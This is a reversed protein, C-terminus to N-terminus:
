KGRRAKIDNKFDRSAEAFTNPQKLWKYVAQQAIEASKEVFRAPAQKSSGENLDPVYPVNNTLYLTDSITFNQELAKIRETTQPVRYKGEPPLEPSPVKVSLFWSWRARGTDVPTSITVQRLAEPLRRIAEKLPLADFEAQATEPLEAVSLERRRRRLEDRCVNILIRMLWTELYEQKRLTHFKRYGRYVAEDVADIAAAESGLTMFAARYLKERSEEARRMYDLETM